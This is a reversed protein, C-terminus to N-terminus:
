TRGAAALLSQLHLPSAPKVLYHHFGADLARRVEEDRGYGSIAILLSRATAPDQRLAAAVGYGDLGPLGIDSVVAEPAWEAAVQVGEPGSYAVRVEHGLVELLMRLSHASDRHDEIVLVRVPRGAGPPLSEDALAPPVTIDDAPAAM